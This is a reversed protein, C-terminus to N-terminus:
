FFLKLAFQIQREPSAVDVITGAGASGIVAAPLGLNPHNFLNFAESRFQLRMRETFRFDRAVSVDV